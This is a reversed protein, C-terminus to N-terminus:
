KPQLGAASSTRVARAFVEVEQVSRVRALFVKRDEFSEVAVLDGLSGEDRARGVSRVCVGPSYAFVSVVEGRRVLIPPRVATSTLVKGAGIARTTEQGLVQEGAALSGAPVDEARQDALRVDGPGIVAGRPLARAAVVVTVTAATVPEPEELAQVLQVRSGTECARAGAGGGVIMVQSAGSLRHKALPVGRLLLLDQIQRVRVYRQGGPSPAPFLEVSALAAADESEAALVEAVDGLTVVPGDCRCERRLEIEAARATTTLAAVAVVAWWTSRARWCLLDMVSPFDGTHARRFGIM